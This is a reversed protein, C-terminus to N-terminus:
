IVLPECLHGAAGGRVVERLVLTVIVGDACTYESDVHRMVTLLGASERASTDVSDM